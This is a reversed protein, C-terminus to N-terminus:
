SLFERYIGEFQKGAYEALESTKFCLRAGHPTLTDSHTWDGFAFGFGSRWEFWPYYKFESSDNYDPKWGENLVQVILKLKCYAAEDAPYNTLGLHFAVPDMNLEILVDDFDKIRDTVKKQFTKKGFLDELLKRGSSKANEHAEIARNKQIELTEM